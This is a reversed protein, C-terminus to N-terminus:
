SADLRARRRRLVGGDRLRIRRRRRSGLRYPRNREKKFLHVILEGLHLDDEALLIKM